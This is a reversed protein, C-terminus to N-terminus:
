QKNKEGRCTVFLGHSPTIFTCKNKPRNAHNRVIIKCKKGMATNFHMKKSFPGINYINENPIRNKGV